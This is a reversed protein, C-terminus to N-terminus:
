NLLKHYERIYLVFSQLLSYTILGFIWNVWIAPLEPFLLLLVMGAYIVATALKGYWKARDLKVNKRLGIIGAFFMFGEKILFLGFIWWIMPRYWAMSLILVLQTLKDAVPDLLKGLETIQNFKRAIFGDLFDTIGSLAILIGALMFSQELVFYFYFPLLVVRFISLLNPITGIEKRWNSTLKM